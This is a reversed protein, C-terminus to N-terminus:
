KSVGTAGQILRIEEVVLSGYGLTAWASASGFDGNRGSIDELVDGSAATAIAIQLEVTHGDPSATGVDAAIFNYHNANMTSLILEIEEDTWVCDDKDFFATGEGTVPDVEIDFTCSELVGGLVATLTQERECYTIYPPYMPEGDLLVRAVVSAKATATTKDGKKGKVQTQTYLGCEMSAGVLLEKQESTKITASFVTTWPMADNTVGIYGMEVANKASQAMAPGSILAAVAAGIIAYARSKHLM